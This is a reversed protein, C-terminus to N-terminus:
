STTKWIGIEIETACQSWQNLINCIFSMMIIITICGKPKKVWLAPGLLWCTFPFSWFNTSFYIEKTLDRGSVCYGALKVAKHNLLCSHKLAKTSYHWVTGPSTVESLGWCFRCSAPVALVKTIPLKVPTSTLTCLLLWPYFHAIEFVNVAATHTHPRCQKQLKLLLQFSSMNRNLALTHTNSHTYTFTHAQAHAHTSELSRLSKRNPFWEQFSLCHRSHHFEKM